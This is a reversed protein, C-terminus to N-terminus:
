GKTLVLKIARAPSLLTPWKYGAQLFYLGRAPVDAYDIMEFGQTLAEDIIHGPTYQFTVPHGGKKIALIPKFLVREITYFWKGVTSEILVVKGGKKVCRYM